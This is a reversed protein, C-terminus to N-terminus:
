VSQVPNLTMYLCILSRHLTQHRLLTLISHAISNRMSARKLNCLTALKLLFQAFHPHYTITKLSATTRFARTFGGSCLIHTGIM